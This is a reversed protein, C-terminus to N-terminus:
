MQSKDYRIITEENEYGLVASDAYITKVVVDGIKEGKKLFYTMKKDTDEIMVSASDVSNLWSIGVLKFNRTQQTIRKNDGTNEVVIKTKDTDIPQFINRQNVGTLYFALSQVTPILNEVGPMQKSTRQDVTFHVDKGLLSVGVRIENALYLFAVVVGVILFKNLTKLAILFGQKTVVKQEVKATSVEPGVNTEIMKLLKQEATEKKNAMM